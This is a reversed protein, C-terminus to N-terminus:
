WKYSKGIHLMATTETRIDCVADMESASEVSLDIPDTTKKNYAEKANNENMQRVFQASADESLIKTNRVYQTRRVVRDNTFLM